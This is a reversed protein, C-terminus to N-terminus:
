ELAGELFVKIRLDVGTQGLRLVPGSPSFVIGSYCPGGGCNNPNSPQAIQAGVSGGDQGADLTFTLTESEFSGASISIQTRAPSVTINSEPQLTAVIEFPAAQEIRLRASVSTTSIVEVREFRVNLRVGPPLHLVDFGPLNSFIGAPLRTLPTESLDLINLRSLGSFIGSPLTTLPNGNLNLENLVPGPPTGTTRPLDSFLNEPLNTIRNNSLDIQTASLDEFDGKTLTTIGHNAASLTDIRQLNNFTVDACNEKGVNEHNKIADGIHRDCVGEKITVTATSEILTGRAYADSISPRLSVRFGEGDVDEIEDDDITPVAIIASTENARITVTGDAANYDNGSAKSKEPVFGIPPRIVYGVELDASPQPNAEVTVM